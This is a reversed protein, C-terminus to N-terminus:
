FLIGGVIPIKEKEVFKQHFQGTDNIVFDNKKSYYLTISLFIPFLILFILDM